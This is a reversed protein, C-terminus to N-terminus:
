VSCIGADRIEPTKIRKLSIRLIRGGESVLSRFAIRRPKNESGSGTLFKNFVMKKTDECDKKGSAM